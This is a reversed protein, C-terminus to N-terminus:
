LIPFEMFTFDYLNHLRAFESFFTRRGLAVVLTEHPLRKTGLPLWQKVASEPVTRCGM